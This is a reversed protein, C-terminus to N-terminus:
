NALEVDTATVSGLVPEINHTSTSPANHRLYM